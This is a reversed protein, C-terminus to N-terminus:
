PKVTQKRSLERQRKRLLETQNKWFTLEEKTSFGAIKKKTTEAAKHKMEVCDFEKSM